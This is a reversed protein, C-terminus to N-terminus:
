VTVWGRGFCGHCQRPKGNYLPDKSESQPKYEGSGQCVPCCVAKNNNPFHYYPPYNYGGGTDKPAEYM